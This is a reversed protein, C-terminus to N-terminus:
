TKKAPEVVIRGGGSVGLWAAFQEAERVSTLSADEIHGSRVSM